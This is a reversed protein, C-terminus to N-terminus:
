DNAEMTMLASRKATMQQLKYEAIRFRVDGMECRVDYMWYGTAM